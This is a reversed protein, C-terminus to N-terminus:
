VLFRLSTICILKETFSLKQKLSQLSVLNKGEVNGGRKSKAGSPEATLRRCHRLLEFIAESGEARFIAGPEMPATSCRYEVM